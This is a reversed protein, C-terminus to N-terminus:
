FRWQKTCVNKTDIPVFGM